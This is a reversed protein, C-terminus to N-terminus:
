CHLKKSWMYVFWRSLTCLWPLLILVFCSKCTSQSSTFTCVMNCTRYRCFYVCPYGWGWTSQETLIPPAIFKHSFALMSLAWLSVVNKNQWLWKLQWSYYLTLKIVFLCVSLTSISFHSLIFSQRLSEVHLHLSRTRWCCTVMCHRYEPEGWFQKVIM